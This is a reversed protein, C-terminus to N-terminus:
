FTLTHIPPFVSMRGRACLVSLFAPEAPLLQLDRRGSLRGPRCSRRWPARASRLRRGGSPQLSGPFFGNLCCRAPLASLSTPPWTSETHPHGLQWTALKELDWPLSNRGKSEDRKDWHPERTPICEGAPCALFLSVWSASDELEPPGPTQGRTGPLSKLFEPGGHLTPALGM